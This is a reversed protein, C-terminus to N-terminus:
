APAVGTLEALAPALVNDVFAPITSSQDSHSIDYGWNPRVLRVVNELRSLEDLEAETARRLNTRIRPHVILLPLGLAAYDAVSYPAQAGELLRVGYKRARARFRAAHKAPNALYAYLLVGHPKPLSAWQEQLELLAFAGTCQAFVTYNLEPSLDSLYRIAKSLSTAATRPELAGPSEGQGPFELAAVARGQKRLAECVQIAYPLLGYGNPLFLILHNTCGSSPSLFLTGADLPIRRWAELDARASAQM